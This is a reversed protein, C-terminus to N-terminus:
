PHMIIKIHDKYDAVFQKGRLLAKVGSVSQTPYIHRCIPIAVGSSIQSLRCEIRIRRFTVDVTGSIWITALMSEKTMSGVERLASNGYTVSARSNTLQRKGQMRSTTHAIQMVM